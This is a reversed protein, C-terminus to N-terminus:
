VKIRVIPSALCDIGSLFNDAWGRGCCVVVVDTGDIFLTCYWCGLVNAVYVCGDDEDDDDNDDDDDDDDSKWKEVDGSREADGENLAPRRVSM